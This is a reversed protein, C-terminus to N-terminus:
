EEIMIEVAKEIHKAAKKYKPGMHSIVKTLRMLTAGVSGVVEAKDKAQRESGTRLLETAIFLENKVFAPNYKAEELRRLLERM